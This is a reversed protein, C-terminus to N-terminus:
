KPPNKIYTSVEVGDEREKSYELTTKYYKTAYHASNRVYHAYDPAGPYVINDAVLVTGDVLLGSAELVKLDPLYLEKTHDIFVLDIHDVNYKPKLLNIVTSAPGNVIKM